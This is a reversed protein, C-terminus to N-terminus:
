AARRTKSAINLSVLLNYFKTIFIAFSISIPFVKMFINICVNLPVGITFLRTNWRYRKYYRKAKKLLERKDSPNTFIFLKTWGVLMEGELSPFDTHYEDLKEFILKLGEFQKILNKENFEESTSKDEGETRVIYCYGWFDNLLLIGEANLYAQIMFYIDEYLAKEPFRVNHDVLLDRKFIKNWIFGPHSTTMLQPMDYVSDIKVVEDYDDLFTKEKISETNNKNFIFRCTVIDVNEKIINDYMVECMDPYYYDDNDMFMIYDSTANEIGINRPRSASGSNESNFIAVVNEHRESFDKLIEKTADNSNDDVLIVEINEFGFNQNVLSDICTNLYREANYTPIIVSIKYKGM